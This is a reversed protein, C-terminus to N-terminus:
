KSFFHLFYPHKGYKNILDGADCGHFHMLFRPRTGEEVQLRTDIDTMCMLIDEIIFCILIM